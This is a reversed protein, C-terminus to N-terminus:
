ENVGPVYDTIKHFSETKESREFAIVGKESLYPTIEPCLAVISKIDYIALNEPNDCYEPDEEGCFFRWGSDTLSDPTEHYFYMVNKGSEFIMKSAIVYGFNNIDM